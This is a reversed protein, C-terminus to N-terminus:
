DNDPRGYVYGMASGYALHSILGGMAMMIGGGFFGMGMMPGLVVSMVLWPLISYIAGQKWGESPLIDLLFAAYITTLIIGIIFHMMWGMWYPMAMMPNETGLMVGMDMGPGGMMPGLVMVVTMAFTGAIGAIVVKQINLNSM